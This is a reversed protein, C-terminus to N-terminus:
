VNATPTRMCTCTLPAILSHPLLTHPTPIITTSAPQMFQLAIRSNPLGAHSIRTCRPCKGVMADVRPTFTAPDETLFLPHIGICDDDPHVKVYRANRGLWANRAM